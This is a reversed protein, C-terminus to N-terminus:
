WAADQYAPLHSNEKPRSVIIMLIVLNERGMFGFGNINANKM